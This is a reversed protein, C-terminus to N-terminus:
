TPSYIKRSFILGRSRFGVNSRSLRIIWESRSLKISGLKSRDHLSTKDNDLILPTKVIFKAWIYIKNISKRPDSSKKPTKKALLWILQKRALKISASVHNVFSAFKELILYYVAFYVDSALNRLWIHRFSLIRTCM